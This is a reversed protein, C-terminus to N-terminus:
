AEERSFFDSGHSENTKESQTWDSLDITALTKGLGSTMQKGTINSRLGQGGLLIM